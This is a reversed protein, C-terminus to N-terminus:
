KGLKARKEVVFKLHHELHDVVHGFYQGLTFKGRENHTGTREYAEPPLEKLVRAFLKRNLDIIAVADAAPQVNYYLGKSFKTEDYGILTPNDEAIIRKMRDTSVLDSDMIHIIIQQISWTGTVPFALLDELTLGKIAASLKEGGKIYQEILENSPASM